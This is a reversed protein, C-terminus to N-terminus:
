WRGGRVAFITVVGATVGDLAAAPWMGHQMSALGFLLIAGLWVALPHFDPVRRVPSKNILAPTIFALILLSVAAWSLFNVLPAGQWTVPFKTPSWFWYHKVRAAFPDMALDFLATLLATLGILWFGYNRIKRWPRLILRAVGRSNLIAAVWVLPLAWPLTKFLQPGAEPGFLFPGFPIGVTVGLTHVGGGLLAIIFAALLVNQLPLQRALAIITGATALVLLLAEPWGPKGPLDLSLGNAALVLAFIGALLIVLLWHFWLATKEAFPSAPRNGRPTPPQM